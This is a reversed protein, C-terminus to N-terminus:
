VTENIHMCSTQKIRETVYMMYWRVIQCRLGFMRLFVLYANNSWVDTFLGFMRLEVLCGYFSWVHTILGFIRFFVLCGYFSWVHTFLGFM